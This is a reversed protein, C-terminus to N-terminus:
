PRKQNWLFKLITQELETFFAPTIKIPIADFIYIAKTLISMKVINTRGSWSCPINKWKKTDEQIEKIVERYNETYLVKVEKTLNIGLYRVTKPVITFPVSEKIERESAENNTYLFAVSEHVNIKYGSVKSFKHIM